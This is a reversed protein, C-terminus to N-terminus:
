NSFYCGTVANQSHEQIRPPTSDSYCYSGQHSFSCHQFPHHPHLILERDQPPQVPQIFVSGGVPRIRVLASAHLLLILISDDPLDPPLKRTNAGNRCRYQDIVPKRSLGAGPYRCYKTRRPWTQAPCSSFAHTILSSLWLHM